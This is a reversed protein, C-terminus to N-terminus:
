IYQVQENRELYNPRNQVNGEHASGEGEHNDVHPRPPVRQHDHVEEAEEVEVGWVHGKDEKGEREKNTSRDRFRIGYANKDPMNIVVEDVDVRPMM